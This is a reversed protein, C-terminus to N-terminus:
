FPVVVECQVQIEVNHNTGDQVTGCAGGQLKVTQGEIVWGDAEALNVQKGDIKVLV